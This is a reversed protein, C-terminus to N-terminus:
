RFICKGLFSKEVNFHSLAFFCNDQSLCIKQTLPYVSYISIFCMHGCVSSLAVAAQHQSATQLEPFSSITGSERCPHMSGGYRGCEAFCVGFGINQKKRKKKKKKTFTFIRKLNRENLSFLCLQGKTDMSFLTWSGGQIGLVWLHDLGNYLIIHYKCYLRCM